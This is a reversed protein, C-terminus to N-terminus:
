AILTEIKEIAVELRHVTEERGLIEMIVFPDPSASKGSVAVRLPWYVAGRGHENVLGDLAPVITLREFEDSPITKIVALSNELITKINSVPEDKWILLGAEYEPLEFFFDTLVFFDKLNKMREREAEIVKKLFEEPANMKKEEFFPGLRQRIEASTLKKMHQANIWDLKEASFAAGAKQVRRLDFEQILDDLTFIERDDKPHWGLLSLFNLMAEPLYGDQRYRLISTEAYRKSLKSRDAALILPLHGYVPERFGLARQLLMQKPTNSIHEEGRIVHSIRMLEDDVTVAFSFLSSDLDRAIIVDGFLSADFSVSGRILDKFEVTVEPIRFRIINSKEGAPPKRLERCRGSYKPALGAALLSQREADLDEKTCYCYYAKGENLLRELYGRYLHARESQRYPGYEGKYNSTRPELNSISDVSGEDWDLQLWQLTEFIEIEFEQKSRAKDTDEIRVVFVGRHQRAFLWNFLATRVGGLHWHGTPSPAIRVRVTEQAVIM